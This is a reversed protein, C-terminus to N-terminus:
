ILGRRELFKALSARTRSLSTKVASESMGTEFAIDSVSRACFYRLVFAARKKPELSYLFENLGRRLEGMEVNEEVTNTDPICEILEDTLEAAGDRKKARSARYRSVSIRRIIKALYAGLLIPRDSPMSNWAALYTDDLSEEADEDSSLLSYSISRLMRGYKNDSEEIASESRAWYLDVIQRDEM